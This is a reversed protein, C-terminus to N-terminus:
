RILPLFVQVADNKTYQFGQLLVGEQGDPNTVTVDVIKASNPPAVCTITTDSIVQVSSCTLTDFIVVAGPQFNAGSISVLLEGKTGGHNPSVLHINPKRGPKPTVSPKLTPQVTSSPAVTPTSTKRPTSSPIPTNTVKRTPSLTKTPTTGPTPTSTPINTPSSTSLPTASAAPTNSPTNTPISTPLSKNKPNPTFTSTPTYTPMMTTATPTAGPTPTSTPINTPTSTMLPTASAAPTDTPTNTSTSTSTPLSTNTPNPTFTSTSSYTPVMTTPIATPTPTAGPTPTGAPINTPTSISLPTASAEPTNTPTNTSTPTSTPLSTNTPTPTSTSTPTYTPIMTTATATPIASPTPTSTPINTPTSTMLPTASAAPTDTPTNTSTSTSTPLSTNTPNPTFTSTSTYIPIMTTATATPTVSPTPTSTPINTPTSTSLPTTSAAPTNTPTNTSTSTSTPLTTNTPTPTYTSTPTYTPMLATATATPPISTSTPLVTPTPTGGNYEHAGIDPIALRSDDFYDDVVETLAVAKDIAPSSATLKYWESAFTQGTKALKPDGVIDGPGSAASPPTKSWLNNSFTINPNYVTYIIPLSDDQQIINNEFRVNQHAGEAIAVGDDRVSNVFTNNAILVNNMGGGQVGQWWHFNIHNGLSINNIIKINASPPTYTEDGMMIGINDGYGHMYSSPDMYVFNRQCIINTSDSIYINASFNDHSINAEITIHDAQYSSIGEGWNEWVTNGRITAYTVGFRAASIGSANGNGKGYENYFSNRWIRSNEVISNHGNTIFIGAQQNHHVYVNDIVDFSGYVYIGNYASNRVEIGSVHIYDGNISLLSGGIGPISNNGDIIPNEGPYAMISIVNAETGSTTFSVSENYIGDRIYVTDGPMVKSAAKGITKWPQSETGPNTDSGITSVYYLAGSTTQASVPYNSSLLHIMVLFLVAVWRVTSNIVSIIRRHSKNRSFQMM